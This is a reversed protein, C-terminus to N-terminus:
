YAAAMFPRPTELISRSQKMSFKEEVSIKEGTKAMVVRAVRFPLGIANM